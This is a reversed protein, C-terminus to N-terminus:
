KYGRASKLKEIQQEYAEAFEDGLFHLFDNEADTAAVQYRSKFLDWYKAKRVFPLMGDVASVDQFEQEILAPDFRQVLSSLAERLGSLTAMQHAQIDDIAEHVSELPPLYGKDPPFLLKNLADNTDISFKLPNNQAPRLTTVGLRFESKLSTRTALTQKYGETMARLLSGAATMLENTEAASLQGHDIGAGNLFAKVATLEASSDRPTEQVVPKAPAPAVDEVPKSEVVPEATAPAAPPEAAPLDWDEPIAQPAQFYQQEEAVPTVEAAKSAATNKPSLLDLDDPIQDAAAAQDIPSPKPIVYPPSIAAQSDSEGWLKGGPEEITAATAMSAAQSISVQCEYEGISITDGDNLLVSQGRGVATPAHNVFTGNTSNDSLFYQGNEYFITAHQHSVIRDEDTLVLDNTPARGISCGDEDLTIAREELTQNQYSTVRVTLTM